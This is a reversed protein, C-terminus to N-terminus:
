GQPYVCCLTDSIVKFAFGVCFVFAPMIFDSAGLGGPTHNYGHKFAPPVAEFNGVFNAVLMCLMTFGRFQDLSVLRQSLQGATKKPAPLM